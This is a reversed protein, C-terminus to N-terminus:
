RPSRRQKAWAPAWAARGRPPACCSWARSRAPRCRGTWPHRAGSRSRGCRHRTLPLLAQTRQQACRAKDRLELAAGRALLLTTVAARNYGAAFHLPTHGGQRPATRALTLRLAHAQLAQKRAALRVGDLEDVGAGGDLLAAVEPARGLRCAAHLPPAEYLRRAAAGDSARDVDGPARWSFCPTRGPIGFLPAEAPAPAAAAQEGAM